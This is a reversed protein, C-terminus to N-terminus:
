DHNTRRKVIKSIMVVITRSIFRIAFFMAILSLVVMSGLFISGGFSKLWLLPDFPILFNFSKVFLAVATIGLSGITVVMAFLIAIFSVAFAFLIAVSAIAFPFAMPLSFLALLGIWLAKTSSGKKKNDVELEKMAAESYIKAALDKPIGFHNEMQEYTTFGADIAYETYYNIAEEKDIKNMRSLCQSLQDCYEKYSSM